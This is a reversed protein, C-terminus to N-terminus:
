STTLIRDFIERMKGPDKVGPSQEVGSAIDIAYPNCALAEDVNEINIGGALIYPRDFGKLLQWNFQKGSGGYMNDVSSDLLPFAVSRRAEEIDREDRIRYIEITVGPLIGTSDRREDRHVQVRDLMCYEKAGRMRQVTENVFVGVKVVFPPLKEIIRRAEDYAIFRKSGKYFIFGLADAGLDVALFADAM